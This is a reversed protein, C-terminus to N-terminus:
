ALEKNSYNKSSRPLSGTNYFYAIVVNNTVHLSQLPLLVPFNWPFQDSLGGCLKYHITALVEM